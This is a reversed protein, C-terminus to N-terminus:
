RWILYWGGTPDAQLDLSSHLQSEQGTENISQVAFDYEGRGLDAHSIKLVPRSAAPIQAFVRWQRSGHIRVYICYRTVVAQSPFQRVPPDWELTITDSSSRVPFSGSTPISCGPALLLPVCAVAVALAKMFLGRVPDM